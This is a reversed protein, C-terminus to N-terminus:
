YRLNEVAHELVERGTIRRLTEDIVEVDNDFSGHAAAIKNLAREIRGDKWQAATVVQEQDLPPIRPEGWFSQWDRLDKKAAPSWRDPEPQDFAAAMGLLPTKHWDELARSVLYLLSKRYPGVTDDQERRDSLMHLHLEARPFLGKEIARRYHRNAFDLSCAAAYLTCSAVRPAQGRLGDLLGGLLISGASHGVLHLELTPFQRSLDVLAQVTLYSGRDGGARVSAAANQKMQSWIAKVGLNECAVELTRDLVDSVSERPDQLLDALGESRPFLRGVADEMIAILSEQLGTKWTFFVPYVGNAKFYPALTRIRRISDGESNLGGHAYLVLRPIQGAPLQKFYDAPATCVVAQVAARADASTVLRNLVRGDNGMVVSHRYAAAEDWPRVAPDEYSHEIERRPLGLGLRGSGSRMPEQEATSLLYHSDMQRRTPAGMVCAWADRGNAVWDGYSLVGFGRYGWREGWSNQVIFGRANYGVLAFAHGGRTQTEPDWAIEPLTAHTIEDTDVYDLNWGGHVQASAYVAGVEQIAAQVDVVSDKEIRYYVGLPRAAADEEWGPTPEIFRVRKREDWYPWNSDSCVGHKHWAKVAGRCSSGQYDEGPWEDYFRALHYLMRPSVKAPPEQNAEIVARRWLLYNITCALGFGTCAGEHGQNLVMRHELYLPFARQVVEPAPYQPLLSRLPPAYPRDRLDIRDPRADLLYTGVYETM